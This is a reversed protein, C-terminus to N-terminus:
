LIPDHCIRYKIKQPCCPYKTMSKNIISPTCGCNKNKKKGWFSGNSQGVMLTKPVYPVGWCLLRFTSGVGFYFCANDHKGELGGKLFNYEHFNIWPSVIHSLLHLAM